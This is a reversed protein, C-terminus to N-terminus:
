YNNNGTITLQIVISFDFDEGVDSFFLVSTINGFGININHLWVNMDTRSGIKQTEGHGGATIRCM